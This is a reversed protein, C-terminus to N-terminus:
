DLIAVSRCVPWKLQHLGIYVLTKHKCACVLTDLSHTKWSEMRLYEVDVQVDDKKKGFLLTAHCSM